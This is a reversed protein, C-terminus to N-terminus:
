QNLDAACICLKPRSNPRFFTRDEEDHRRTQNNQQSEHAQGNIERM